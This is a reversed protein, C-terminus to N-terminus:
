RMDEPTRLQGARVRAAHFGSPVSCPLLVRGNEFHMPHLMGDGDFMHHRDPGNRLHVGNLDRPTEGVVELDDLAPEDQVAAFVGMLYPDPEGTGTVARAVAVPREETM